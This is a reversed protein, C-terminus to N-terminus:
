GGFIIPSLILTDKEQIERDRINAFLELRDNLIIVVEDNIGGNEPDYINNRFEPYSESLQRFYAEITTGPTIMKEVPRGAQKEHGITDAIWSYLELRFTLRKQEVM